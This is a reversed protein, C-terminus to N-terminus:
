RLGRVEVAAISGPSEDVLAQFYEPLNHYSARIESADAVLTTTRARSATSVSVLVGSTQEITRRLAKVSIDPNAGLTSTVIPNIGCLRGRATGGSCN